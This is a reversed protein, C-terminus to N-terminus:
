QYHTHSLLLLESKEPAPELGAQELYEAIIDLGQQLTSEVEGPSGHTCWLTLDDVYFIHSLQSVQQLRYALQTM